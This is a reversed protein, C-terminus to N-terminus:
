RARWRPIGKWRPACRARWRGSRRAGRRVSSRCCRASRRRTPMPSRWRRRFRCCSPRSAISMSRTSWCGRRMREGMRLLLWAREGIWDAGNVGSPTATSTLLARRLLIHSWRSAIPADLRRMLASLYRGDANGFADLGLGEAAGLSGVFDVGRRREDPVDFKPEEPAEETEGEADETASEQGGSLDSQSLRLPAPAGDPTGGPAPTTTNTIPAEPAPPADGFGPPLLSEPAQQGIAAPAIALLAAGVLLVSNRPRPM